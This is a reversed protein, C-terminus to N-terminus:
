GAYRRRSPPESLIALVNLLPFHARDAVPSPPTINSGQGGTGLNEKRGIRPWLFPDVSLLPEQCPRGLDKGVNAAGGGLFFGWGVLLKGIESM